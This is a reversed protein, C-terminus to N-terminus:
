DNATREPQPLADAVHVWQGGPLRRLVGAPKKMALIAGGDPTPAVQFAEGQVTEKWQGDSGREFVCKADVAILADGAFALSKVHRGPYGVEPAWEANDKVFLGAKGGSWLRGDPGCAVASLERLKDTPEHQKAVARQVEHLSSNEGALFLQVLAQAYPAAALVVFATLLALSSAPSWWRPNLLYALAKM